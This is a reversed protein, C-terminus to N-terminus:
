SIVRFNHRRGLETLSKVGPIGDADKGRYGLARQFASYAEVTKTGFHGDVYDNDLVGEVYLAKEVVKVESGYRGPNSHDKPPDLRAASIIHDLTVTPVSTGAGFSFGSPLKAGSKFYVHVHDVHNGPISGRNSLKKWTGRDFNYSWTVKGDLSFLVWQIKLTKGHKILLDVLKKGAQFEKVTRRMGVRETIIIDVSRGSGHETSRSPYDWGRGCWLYPGMAPDSAIHSFLTEVIKRCDKNFNNTLLRFPSKSSAISRSVGAM